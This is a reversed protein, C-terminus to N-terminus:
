AIMRTARVRLSTPVALGLAAAAAENIVLEFSRSFQVPLEAINAGRLILDIYGAILEETEDRGGSYSLLGGAEVFVEYPYIAPLRHRAAAGAVRAANRFLFSDPMAFLGIGEERALTAIAPEIESVASLPTDVVALDVLRAGTRLAALYGAGGAPATAPNYLVGLRTTAPAIERLLEIWKPAMAPDNNSFGTANGDPRELSRVFGSGVPDSATTFLVPIRKTAALLAATETSSGACIIDPRGAVIEAVRAALAGPESTVTFLRFGITQGEVWGRGALLRRLRDYREVVVPHDLPLGVLFAIIRPPRQANARAAPRVALAAFAALLSRRRM